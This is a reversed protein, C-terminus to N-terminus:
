ASAGVVADTLKEYLRGALAFKEIPPCAISACVTEILLSTIVSEFEDPTMAVIVGTPACFMDSETECLPLRVM